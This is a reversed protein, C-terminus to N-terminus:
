DRLSDFGAWAGRSRPRRQEVGRGARMVSRRAVPFCICRSFFPTTIGVGYAQACVAPNTIRIEAKSNENKLELEHNLLLIKPHQIRKPQQEFGAYSFSKKFAVGQILCSDEM